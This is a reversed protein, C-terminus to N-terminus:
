PIRLACAALLVWGAMLCLGGLPTLMRVPNSGALSLLYLNGQFLVSGAVFLWAAYEFPIGPYRGKALGVALLALAHYFMYDTALEFLRRNNGQDLLGALAHSGLAGALVGLFGLIAGSVLCWKM